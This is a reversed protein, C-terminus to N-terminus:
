AAVAESLNITLTPSTSGTLVPRIKNGPVYGLAGTTGNATISVGTVAIATTENDPTYEFTVTGSGFTGFVDASIPAGRNLVHWAGNGNASFTWQKLFSM